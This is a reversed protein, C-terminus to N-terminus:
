FWKKHKFIAFMVLSSVAMISGVLWFGNPHSRFPVQEVSVGFLFAVLTAPLLIASLVSLLKTIENLRHTALSQNTEGLTETTEKLAELIDWINQSYELLDRYYTRSQPFTLYPTKESPLKELVARHTKMMKRFEIINKKMLAIQSLMNIDMQHFIKKEIANIDTSMHDLIPYSRRFLGELVKYLLYGSDKQMLLNRTEAENKTKQFLANLTHIDGYHITLFFKDGVFFDVEGPVIEKTERNYVPFLLVMMHYGEGQDMHARQQNEAIAQFHLDHFKFNKRLWLLERPGPNVM